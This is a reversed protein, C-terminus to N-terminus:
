DHPRDPQLLKHEGIQRDLVQELKEVNTPTLMKKLEQDSSLDIGQKEAIRSVISLLKTLEQETILNVQLDTEARLESIRESRHQAILVFISLIIAELSVIMTLLGFPYPDFPDLGPFVHENWLGWIAFWVLNAVLFTNSGFARSMWDAIKEPLTRQADIRAKFSQVIRQDARHAPRRLRHRTM